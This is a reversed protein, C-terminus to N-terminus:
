IELGRKLDAFLLRHFFQEGAERRLSLRGAVYGRSKLGRQVSTCIETDEQQIRESVHISERRYAQGEPGTRGFYFNFIVQCHDPDIPLVLNTDMAGEYWNIMFNPYLWFYYAREGKRTVATSADAQESHRMPSSQICCREINEITYHGYDLVSSLGEHLHPVHYGGDLYNDIFVKWNCALTYARRELFQLEGLNLPKARDTLAGLYESLPGAGEDLNIFVFNEWSDVGIPVLGNRSPDFNRVGEFEPM